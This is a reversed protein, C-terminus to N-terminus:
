MRGPAATQSASVPVVSAFPPHDTMSVPRADFRALLALVNSRHLTATKRAARGRFVGAGAAIRTDPVRENEKGMECGTRGSGSM